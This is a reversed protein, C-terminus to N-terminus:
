SHDGASAWEIEHTTCRECWYEHRTGSRDKWAFSIWVGIRQDFGQFEKRCRGCRELTGEKTEGRATEAAGRTRNQGRDASVTCPEPIRAQWPWKIGM